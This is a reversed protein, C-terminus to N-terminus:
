GLLRSLREWAGAGDGAGGLGLLRAGAADGIGGLGLLRAASAEGGGSRNTRTLAKMSGSEGSLSSVM